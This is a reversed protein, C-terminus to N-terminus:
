IGELRAILRQVQARSIGGAFPSSNRRGTRVLEWLEEGLIARSEEMHRDLDVGRRALRVAAIARLLPRLDNELGFESAFAASLASDVRRLQELSRSPGVRRDVHARSRARGALNRITILSIVVALAIAAAGAVEVPAGFLLSGGVV